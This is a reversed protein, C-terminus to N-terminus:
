CVDASLFYPGKIHYPATITLAIPMHIYMHIYIYMCVYVYKTETRTYESSSNLLKKYESSANKVGETAQM